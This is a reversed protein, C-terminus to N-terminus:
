QTNTHQSYILQSDTVYANIPIFINPLCFSMLNFICAGVSAVAGIVSSYLFLTYVSFSLMSFCM